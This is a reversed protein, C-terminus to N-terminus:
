ESSLTGFKGNSISTSLNSNKKQYNPSKQSSWANQLPKQFVPDDPPLSKSLSTYDRSSLNVDSEVKRLVKRITNLKTDTNPAHQSLFLELKHPHLAEESM